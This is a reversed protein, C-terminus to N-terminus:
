KEKAVKDMWQFLEQLDYNGSHAVDWPLALDVDYGQNKLKAALMVPVAISGDRDITGHRIRWHRAPHADKIGIYNMPNMMNVIQVDVLSGSVSSYERGQDTFHQRAVSATGFLDNEVSSLDLKDFAPPSKMRKAYNAYQDFDIHTIKKNKLTIWSQASLDKGEDFAKQASAILFSLVYEKFSGNGAADLTLNSGDNKKLALGNIYAPFLKKLRDSVVIQDATLKGEIKTTDMKGDSKRVSSLKRYENNGNFLWEYAADANELNTIPCYASVAFIGDDARAAGLEQFYKNYDKSNGSAGLLASLAGGASTGNSIIKEATGPMAKDNYRLYRVAAKIDVICAPAKGTYLGNGDKNTRGRAGPSAVVYGKSLAVLIANESGRRRDKDPKGPEAPLYGGINNPFFIPASEADFGNVSQNSFYQEPVYVHMSQFRIDVPSSVYVLNQYSRYDITKGNVVATEATYNASNFHLDYKKPMQAPLQHVLVVALVSSLFYSFNKMRNRNKICNGQAQRLKALM